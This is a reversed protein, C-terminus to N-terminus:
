RIASLEEMLAVLRPESIAQRASLFFNDLDTFGQKEYVSAQLAMELRDIQRVFRAEPSAQREYEEWM